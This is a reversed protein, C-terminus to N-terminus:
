YLRKSSNLYSAYLQLQVAGLVTGIGKPVRFELLFAKHTLRSFILYPNSYVGPRDSMCHCVTSAPSAFMSTLSACLNLILLSVLVIVAFLGFVTLIWGLM